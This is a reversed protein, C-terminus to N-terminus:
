SKLQRSFSNLGLAGEDTRVNCLSETVLRRLVGGGAGQGGVEAIFVISHAEKRRCLSMHLVSETSHVDRLIFM